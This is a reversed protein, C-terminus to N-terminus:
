SRISRNRPKSMIQLSRWCFTSTESTASFPYINIATAKIYLVQHFTLWSRRNKQDQHNIEISAPHKMTALRQKVDKRNCKNKLHHQKSITKLKEYLYFTSSCKRQALDEYFKEWLLRAKLEIVPVIPASNNTVVILAQLGQPIELTARRNLLLLITSM